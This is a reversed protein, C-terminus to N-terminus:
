KTEAGGDQSEDAPANAPASEPGMLREQLEQMRKEMRELRERLRGDGFEPLVAQGPRPLQMRHPGGRLMQEVFPRLDEPLQQFSEPDDGVIEWTEGGRKVTIRPPQGDEKVISISVGNPLNAAGEGGGVIVGPGFNRFEFPMNGFERLLEQPIEAGGPIGFGPGFARGFSGQPQPQPMDAPREEPTIYVSERQGRRLVEVAIQGQKEGETLVLEVLDQMERLDTDNARLLIDNVKLGAKGAPSDPVVNVVLLGQNEPIEVHARLPHEPGIPGGVLGIWYKPAAPQDVIAGDTPGPASSLEPEEVDGKGIQIVPGGDAEEDQAQALAGAGFVLAVSLATEVVGRFRNMSMVIKEERKQL